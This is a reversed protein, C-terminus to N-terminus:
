DKWIRLIVPNKSKTWRQYELSYLSKSIADTETRLHPFSSNVFRETREFAPHYVFYFFGTIRLTVCWYWFGKSYVRWIGKMHFYYGVFTQLRKWIVTNQTTVSHLRTPESSLTCATICSPPLSPPWLSVHLRIQALPFILGM